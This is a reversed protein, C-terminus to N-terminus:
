WQPLGGRLQDQAFMVQRGLEVLRRVALPLPRMAVLQGPVLGGPLTVDHIRICSRRSGSIPDHGPIRHGRAGVEDLCTDLRRESDEGLFTRDPRPSPTWGPM